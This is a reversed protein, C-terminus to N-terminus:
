NHRRMFCEMLRHWIEDLQNRYNYRFFFESLYGDLRALSCHHHVGTLWVKFNWLLLRPNEEKFKGAILQSHDIENPKPSLCKVHLEQVEKSRKKTHKKMHVTVRQFGNVSAERKTICIGDIVLIEESTEAVGDGVAAQIAKHTKNRFNYATKPNVGFEKWLTNSSKGKKPVAMEFALGFATLLPIKIKHFVTNATVSEDYGCKSCRQHYVTKGKRSKRNNCRQCEYGDQWKIQFLFRMCDEECRFTQCFTQRNIGRFM